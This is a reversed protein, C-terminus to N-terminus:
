LYDKSESLIIRECIGYAPIAFMIASITAICAQLGAASRTKEPNPAIFLTSPKLAYYTGGDQNHPHNGTTLVGDCMVAATSNLPILVIGYRTINVINDVRAKVVGIVRCVEGEVRWLRYDDPVVYMEGNDVHTVNIVSDCNVFLNDHFLCNPLENSFYYNTGLPIVVNDAIMYGVGGGVLAMIIVFSVLVVNGAGAVGAERMIVGHLGLAEATMCVILFVLGGVVGWYGGGANSVVGVLGMFVVVAFGGVAVSVLLAESLSYLEEVNGRRVSMGAVVLAGTYAIFCVVAVGMWVGVGM